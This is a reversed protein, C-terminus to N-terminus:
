VRDSYTTAERQWKLREASQVMELSSEDWSVRSPKRVASAWLTEREILLIFLIFIIRQKWTMAMRRSAVVRM